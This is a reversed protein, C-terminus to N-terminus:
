IKIYISIGHISTNNCNKICKYGYKKLLKTIEPQQKQNKYEERNSIEVEIKNFQQINEKGISKLVEYEAGQCDLILFNYIPNKLEPYKDILDTYTITKLKLKEKVKVPDGFTEIHKCPELISSSVSNNTIYFDKILNSENWILANIAKHGYKKVHEKLEKYRVPQAEIWIMNNKISEYHQPAEEGTHAGIQIIGTIEKNDKIRSKINKNYKWRCCFLIIIIIIVIIIIGIGVKIEYNLKDFM